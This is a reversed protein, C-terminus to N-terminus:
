KKAEEFFLDISNTEIALEYLAKVFSSSKFRQM